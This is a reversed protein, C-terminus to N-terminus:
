KWHSITGSPKLPKKWNIAGLFSPLQALSHSLLCVQTGLSSLGLGKVIMCVGFTRKLSDPKTEVKQTSFAFSIKREFRTLKGYLVRFNQFISNKTHWMWYYLSLLWATTIYQFHLWFHWNKVSGKIQYVLDDSPEQNLNAFNPWRFLYLAKLSTECTVAHLWYNKQQLCSFNPWVQKSQIKKALRILKAFNTSNWVM